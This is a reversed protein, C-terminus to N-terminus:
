HEFWTEMLSIVAIDNHRRMLFAGKWLGNNEPYGLERYRNMQNNVREPIDVGRSMAEHAEQYICQRWPHAFCVFPSRSRDLHSEFIEVPPVKLRVTNDIYLSADYEALFRHPLIKRQKAARAADLAGSGARRIQWFRSKLEPMDTFCIFDITPDPKYVLNNFTESYGFLCTYVVRHPRIRTPMRNKLFNFM